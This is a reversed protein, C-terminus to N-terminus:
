EFAINLVVRVGLLSAFVFHALAWSGQVIVGIRRCVAAHEFAITRRRM